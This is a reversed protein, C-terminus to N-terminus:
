AATNEDKGALVQRAPAVGQLYNKGQVARWAVTPEMPSLKHRLSGNIGM